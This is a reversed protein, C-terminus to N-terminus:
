RGRELSRSSTPRCAQPNLTQEIREIQTRLQKSARSALADAAELRAYREPHDRDLEKLAAINSSVCDFLSAIARLHNLLEYPM